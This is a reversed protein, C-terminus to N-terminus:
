TVAQDDLYLDETIPMFEFKKEKLYELVRPLASRLNEFSKESDHFVIISGPRVSSIVNKFVNEGSLNWRYDYSLVDWMIIRYTTALAKIQAPLIRGYPPRFLQSDIFGGALRIDDLYDQLSTNFGKLHSYSHNGVSHGAHLIQRYLEPNREVNRGLCFFTSLADFEALLDLVWTTVIPTPGDDFTLFIRQHDGYYDWTVNNITRTIISPPKVFPM